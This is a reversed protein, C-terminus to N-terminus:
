LLFFFFFDLYWLKFFLFHTLFSGSHWALGARWNLGSQETLSDSQLSDNFHLRWRAFTLVPQNVAPNCFVPLCAPLCAQPRANVPQVDVAALRQCNFCGRATRTPWKHSQFFDVRFVCWKWSLLTTVLAREWYKRSGASDKVWQIRVCCCSYSIRKRGWKWAIQKPSNLKLYGGWGM